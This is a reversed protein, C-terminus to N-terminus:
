KLALASMPTVSLTINKYGSLAALKAATVPGPNGDIKLGTANQFARTHSYLTWKPDVTIGHKKCTIRM